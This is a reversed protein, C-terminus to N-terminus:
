YETNHVTLNYITYIQIGNKTLLYDPHKHVKILITIRNTKNLFGRKQATNKMENQM